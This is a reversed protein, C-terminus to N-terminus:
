AGGEIGPKGGPVLGRRGGWTEGEWWAGGAPRPDHFLVCMCVCVCVCVCVCM